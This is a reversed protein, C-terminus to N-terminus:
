AGGRRLQQWRADAELMAIRSALLYAGRRRPAAATFWQAEEHALDQAASYDAICPGDEVGGPRGNAGMAARQLALAAVYLVIEDPVHQVLQSALVYPSQGAAIAEVFQRRSHAQLENRSAM